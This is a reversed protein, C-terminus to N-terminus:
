YNKDTENKFYSTVAITLILLLGTFIIIGVGPINLLGLGFTVLGLIFISIVVGLISGSGGYIYVGGFVVMTIIELEWGFAINPKISSLRGSLLIAALSSFLGNLVFLMKLYNKVKIGSYESTEPNNGIMFIKKGFITKHLFIGIIFSLALFISFSYPITGFLYGNGLNIIFNPLNTYYQDELVVYSIGRFLSLTGITVIISPINYYTVLFGNIYGCVVGCFLTLFIITIIPLDQNSLYGLVCASLAVISAVSLDIQRSIILFTMSLAIIGKESFLFTSDILNTLDFFYPSFYSNLLIVFILVIFLINEKKNFM